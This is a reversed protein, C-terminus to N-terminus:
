PGAYPEEKYDSYKWDPEFPLGVLGLAVRVQAYHLKKHHVQDFADRAYREFMRGCVTCRRGNPEVAFLFNGEDPRVRMAQVVSNIYEDSGPKGVTYMRMQAELVRARLEDPVYM